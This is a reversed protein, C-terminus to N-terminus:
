DMSPDFVIKLDHRTAREHDVIPAMRRREARNAVNDIEDDQARQEPAQQDLSVGHDSAFGFSSVLVRAM